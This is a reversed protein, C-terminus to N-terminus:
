ALAKRAIQDIQSLTTYPREQKEGLIERIENLAARLRDVEPNATPWTLAGLTAILETRPDVIHTAYNSRM